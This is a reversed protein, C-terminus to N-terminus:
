HQWLPAFLLLGVVIIMISKLWLSLNALWRLSTDLGMKGYIISAVALPIGATCYYVFILAMASGSGNETRSGGSALLCYSWLIIPIMTAVFSVIAWARCDKKEKSSKVATEPLSAMYKEKIRMIKVAEVIAWIYSVYSFYMLYMTPMVADYCGSGRGCLLRVIYYPASFAVVIAIHIIGRLYQKLIFNHIGFLGSPLFAFILALGIRKHSFRSVSNNDANVAGGQESVAPSDDPLKNTEDLYEPM